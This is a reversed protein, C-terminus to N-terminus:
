ISLERFKKYIDTQYFKRTRIVLMFSVLSGFLSVGAVIIFALRFCDVGVCNLEEGAKREIGMAAMKREAEKDYLHGTVRM